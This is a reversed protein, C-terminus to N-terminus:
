SRRSVSVRNGRVSDVDTSGRRVRVLNGTGTVRLAELRRYTAANGDGTLVTRSGRQVGLQNQDGSVRVVHARDARLNSGQSSLTAKEVLGRVAVTSDDATLRLTKVSTPAVHQGGGRVVLTRISKSTVANGTGQVVLRQATPMSVQVGDATIRVLGCTGSVDYRQNDHEIVLEGDPDASCNLPIAPTLAHAPAAALTALGLAGAAVLGVLSPTLATM